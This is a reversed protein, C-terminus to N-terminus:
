FCPFSASLNTLSAPSSILFTNSSFAASPFFIASFASSSAFFYHAILFLCRLLVLSATDHLSFANCPTTPTLWACFRPRIHLDISISIREALFDIVTIRHSAFVLRGMRSNTLHINLLKDLREREKLLDNRRYATMANRVGMSSREVGVFCKRWRAGDECLFVEVIGSRNGDRCAFIFAGGERRRAAEVRRM